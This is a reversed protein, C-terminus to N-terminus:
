SASFVRSNAQNRDFTFGIQEVYQVVQKLKEKTAGGVQCHALMEEMDVSM